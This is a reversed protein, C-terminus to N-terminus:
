CVVPLKKDSMCYVASLIWRAESAANNSDFTKFSSPFCDLYEAVQPKNIAM